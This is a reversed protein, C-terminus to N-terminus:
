DTSKFTIVFQVKNLGRIGYKKSIKIAADLLDYIHKIIKSNEDKSLIKDLEIILENLYKEDLLHHNQSNEFIYSVFFSEIM